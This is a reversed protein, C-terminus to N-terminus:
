NKSFCHYMTTQPALSIATNYDAMAKLQDGTEHYVQSRWLYYLANNPNLSIAQTYDELAGQRDGLNKRRFNARETYLNADSPYVCIAKNLEAIAKQVDGQRFTTYAKEIYAASDGKQASSTSANFQRVPTPRSEVQTHISDDRRFGKLLDLTKSFVIGVTYGIGLVVGVVLLISAFDYSTSSTFNQFAKDDQVVLDKEVQTNPVPQFVKTSPITLIPMLAQIKHNIM